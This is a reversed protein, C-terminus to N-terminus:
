EFLNESQCQSVGILGDSGALLSDLNDDNTILHGLQDICLVCYM